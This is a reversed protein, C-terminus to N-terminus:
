DSFGILVRRREGAGAGDILRPVVQKPPACPFVAFVSTPLCIWETDKLYSVSGLVEFIKIDRYSYSM